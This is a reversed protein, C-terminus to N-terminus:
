ILCVIITEEKALMELLIETEKGGRVSNREQIQFNAQKYRPHLHSEHPHVLALSDVVLGFYAFIPEASYGHLYAGLTNYWFTGYM